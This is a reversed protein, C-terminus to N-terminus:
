ISNQDEEDQSLSSSSSSPRSFNSGNVATPSLSPPTHVNAVPRDCLFPSPLPPTRLPSGSLWETQLPWWGLGKTRNTIVPASSRWGRLSVPLCVYLDRSLFIRSLSVLLFVFICVSLYDPPFQCVPLCISLCVSVSVCYEVVYVQVSSSLYISLFVSISLYNSLHVCVCCVSEKGEDRM